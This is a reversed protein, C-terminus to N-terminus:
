DISWHIHNQHQAKVAERAAKTKAPLDSTIYESGSRKMQAPGFNEFRGNQTDFASQLAILIASTGGLSEVSKGNISGIDV